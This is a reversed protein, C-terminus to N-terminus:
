LSEDGARETRHPSHLGVSRCLSLWGPLNHNPSATTVDQYWKACSKFSEKNNIDFVVM